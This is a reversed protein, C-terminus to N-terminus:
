ESIQPKPNRTQGIRTVPLENKGGQILKFKTRRMLPWRQYPPLKLLLKQIELVKSAKMTKKEQM